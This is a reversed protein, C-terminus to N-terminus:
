DAALLDDGVYNAQIQLRDAINDRVWDAAEATAAEAEDETQWESVSLGTSNGADILQYDIFGPQAQFIPLMGAKALAAIEAWTGRTVTYVAIRMHAM